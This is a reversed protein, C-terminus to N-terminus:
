VSTSSAIRGMDYAKAAIVCSATGGVHVFTSEDWYAQQFSGDNVALQQQEPTMNKNRQGVSRANLGACILVCNDRSYHGNSNVRELSPMFPSGRATVDMVIGSYACRFGQQRFLARCWGYADSFDSGLLWECLRSKNKSNGKAGTVLQYLKYKSKKNNVDRYYPSTFSPSSQRLNELFVDDPSPSVRSVSLADVLQLHKFAYRANLFVPRWRVNSPIYHLVADNIRDPSQTNHYGGVNRMLFSAVIVDNEGTVVYQRGDVSLQTVIDELPMIKVEKNDDGRGNEERRKSSLVMNKRIMKALKESSMHMNHNSNCASQCTYCISNCGTKNAINKCMKNFTTQHEVLGLKTVGRCRYLPVTNESSEEEDEEEDDNLEFESTDDDYEDEKERRRKRSTTTVAAKKRRHETTQTAADRKQVPVPLTNNNITVTAAGFFNTIQSQNMNSVHQAVTV